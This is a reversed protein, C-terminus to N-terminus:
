NKIMTLKLNGEWRITQNINGTVVLDVTNTTGNWVLNASIPPTFDQWVDAILPGIAGGVTTRFFGRRLKAVYRQTNTNLIAVVEAEALVSSNERVELRCLVTPTNGGTFLVRENELRNKYMGDQALKFGEGLVRWNNPLPKNTRSHYAEVIFTGFPPITNLYQSPSTDTIVTDRLIIRKEAGPASFTQIMEFLGGYNLKCDVFEFTQNSTTNGFMIMPFAIADTFNLHCNVLRVNGTGASEGIRVQGSPCVADKIVTIGSGLFDNVGSIRDAKVIITPANGVTQFTAFFVEGAEIHLTGYTSTNNITGRLFQTKIRSGQGTGGIYGVVTGENLEFDIWNSLQVANLQNPLSVRNVRVTSIATTLLSHLLLSGANTSTSVIDGIEILARVASLTPNGGFLSRFVWYVATGTNNINFVSQPLYCQVTHGNTNVNFLASVSTANVNINVYVGPDGAIIVGNKHWNESPNTVNYVGKRLYVVDGSLAAALAAPVTLFPLDERNRTGTTDNGFLPDVYVINSRNERVQKVSRFIEAM